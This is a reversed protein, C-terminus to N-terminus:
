TYVTLRISIQYLDIEEFFPLLHPSFEFTSRTIRKMIESRNKKFNFKFNLTIWRENFFWCKYSTSLWYTKQQYFNLKQFYIEFELM